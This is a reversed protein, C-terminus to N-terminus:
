EPYTFTISLGFNAIRTEILNSSRFVVWEIGQYTVNGVKPLPGGPGGVSTPEDDSWTAAWLYAEATGHQPIAFVNEFGEIGAAALDAADITEDDSWGLARLPPGPDVEVPEPIAVAAGAGALRRVIWPALLSGAGSNVLADGYTQGRSTLPQDYLYSALRITCADAIAIPATTSRVNVIERAARLWHTLNELVAEDEPNDVRLADALQKISVAM